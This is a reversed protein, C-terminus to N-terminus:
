KSSVGSIMGFHPRSGHGGITARNQVGAANIQGNGAGIRPM